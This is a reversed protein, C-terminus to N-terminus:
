SITLETEIRSLQSEITLDIEGFRTMVRCGGPSVNPDPTVTVTAPALQGVALALREVQQGLNEHDKPNLCVVIETSGAALTLGDRVLDLTIEPTQSLERRIIRESIATALKVASAQWHDLWQGRADELESVLRDIAPILTEMQKAVKEDLIRSIAEEAALHGADEARRRIQEAQQHATTIIGAAQDRVEGLYSDSQDRLSDLRFAVPQVVTTGRQQRDSSKIITAM